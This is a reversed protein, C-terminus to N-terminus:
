TEHYGSTGYGPAEQKKTRGWILASEYVAVGPLASKLKRLEEPSFRDSEVYLERLRSCAKLRMYGNLSIQTGQAYLVRLHNLQVILPISRDTLDRGNVDLEEVGYRKLYPSAEAFKEDNMDDYHFIVLGYKNPVWTGGYKNLARLNPDFFQCGVTSFIAVTLLLLLWRKASYRM